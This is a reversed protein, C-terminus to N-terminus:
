SHYVTSSSSLEIAAFFPLSLCVDGVPPSSLKDEGERGILPEGGETHKTTRSDGNWLHKMPSVISGMRSGSGTLAKLSVQDEVEGM